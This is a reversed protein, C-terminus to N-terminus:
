YRPELFDEYLFILLWFPVVVINGEWFLVLLEVELRELNPTFWASLALMSYERYLSYIIGLMGTCTSYKMLYVAYSGHYTTWQCIRIVCDRKDSRPNYSLKIADILFIGEM